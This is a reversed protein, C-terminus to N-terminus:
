INKFQGDGAEKQKKQDKEIVIETCFSNVEVPNSSLGSFFFAHGSVM